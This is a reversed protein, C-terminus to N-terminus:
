NMHIIENIQNMLLNSFLVIYIKIYSWVIYFWDLCNSVFNVEITAEQTSVLEDTQWNVFSQM